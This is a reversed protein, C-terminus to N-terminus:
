LQNNVALARALTIAWGVAIIIIFVAVWYRVKVATFFRNVFAFYVGFVAIIFALFASIAAIICLLAAAPQIYFAELVKGQMFAVVSTTMGCTPCPLDYKQKFGCPIHGAFNVIGASVLAFVAFLVAAAAFFVGAKVRQSTTARYVFKPRGAKPSTEGAGPPRPPNLHQSPQMVGNSYSLVISIDIWGKM